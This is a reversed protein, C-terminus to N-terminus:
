HHSIAPPPPSGVVTAMLLALGLLVVMVIAVIWLVGSVPSRHEDDRDTQQRMAVGKRYRWPMASAMIILLM